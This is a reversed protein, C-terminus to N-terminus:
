IKLSSRKDVTWNKRSSWKTKYLIPQIECKMHCQPMSSHSSDRKELPWKTSFRKLFILSSFSRMNRLGRRFLKRAFKFMVFNPKTAQCLQSSWKIFMIKLLNYIWPLCTRSRTHWRMSRQKSTTIPWIVRRDCISKSRPLCHRTRRPLATGREIKMLTYNSCHRTWCM